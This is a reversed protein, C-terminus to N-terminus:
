VTEKKLFNETVKKEMYEIDKLDTVVIPTYEAKIKITNGCRDCQFTNEVGVRFAIEVAQNVSCPCFVQLTQETAAQFELAEALRNNVTVRYQLYMQYVQWLFVQLAILGPASYFWSLFPSLTISGLLTILALVGLSKM